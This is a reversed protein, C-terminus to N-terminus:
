LKKFLNYEDSVFLHKCTQFPKLTITKMQKILNDYCLLFVINTSLVIISPHLYKLRM